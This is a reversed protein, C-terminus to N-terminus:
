RPKLGMERTAAWAVTLLIAGLVLSLVAAVALHATGFRAFAAPKFLTLGFAAWSGLALLPNYHCLIAIDRGLYLGAIVWMMLLPRLMPHPWCLFYGVMVAALILPGHM